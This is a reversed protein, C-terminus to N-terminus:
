RRKKAAKKRPKRMPKLLRDRQQRTRLYPRYLLDEWTRDKWVTRRIVADASGMSASQASAYLKRALRVIKQKIRATVADRMRKLSVTRKKGQKAYQARLEKAFSRLAVWDRGHEAKGTRVAEIHRSLAQDVEANARRGPALGNEPRVDNRVLRALRRRRRDQEAPPLLPNPILEPNVVAEFMAAQVPLIIEYMPKGTEPDIQLEPMEQPLIWTWRQEYLGPRKNITEKSIEDDQM